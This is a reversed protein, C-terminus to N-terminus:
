STRWSRGGSEGSSLTFDTTVGSELVIEPPLPMSPVPPDGDARQGLV